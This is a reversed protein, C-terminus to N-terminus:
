EFLRALRIDAIWEIFDLNLLADIKCNLKM